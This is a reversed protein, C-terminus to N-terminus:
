FRVHIKNHIKFELKPKYMAKLALFKWLFILSQYFFKKEPEVSYLIISKSQVTLCLLM